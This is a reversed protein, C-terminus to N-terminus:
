RHHRRSGLYRTAGVLAALGLLGVVWNPAKLNTNVTRPQQWRTTTRVGQADGPSFVDAAHAIM